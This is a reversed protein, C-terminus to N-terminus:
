PAGVFGESLVFLEERLVWVVGWAVELVAEEEVAEVAAGVGDGAELCADGSGGAGVVGVGAFFHLGLDVFPFGFLGWSGGM